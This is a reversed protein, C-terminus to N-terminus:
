KVIAKKAPEAAAQSATKSFDAVNATAHEVAAKTKETAEAASQKGAEILQAAGTQFSKFSTEATAKFEDSYTQFLEATDRWNSLWKEGWNNFLDTNVLPTTASGQGKLLTDTYSKGFDYYEQILEAQKVRLAEATKLNLDAVKQLFQFHNTALDNVAQITNNPM